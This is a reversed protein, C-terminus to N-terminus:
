ELTIRAEAESLLKDPQTTPVSFLHTLPASDFSASLNSTRLFSLHFLVSKTLLIMTEFLSAPEQVKNEFSSKIEPTHRITLLGCFLLLATPPPRSTTPLTIPTVRASNQRNVCTAPWLVSPNPIHTAAKKPGGLICRETVVFFRKGSMNRRHSVLSCLFHRWKSPYRKQAVLRLFSRAGRHRQITSQKKM